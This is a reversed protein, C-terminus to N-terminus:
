LSLLLKEAEDREWISEQMEIYKISELTNAIALVRSQLEKNKMYTSMQRFLEILSNISENDVAWMMVYKKIDKAFWRTNQLSELIHNVFEQKSM